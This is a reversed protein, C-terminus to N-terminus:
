AVRRLMELISDPNRIEQSEQSDENGQSFDVTTYTRIGPGHGNCDMERGQQARRVEKQHETLELRKRKSFSCHENGQESHDKLDEMLEIRKTSKHATTVKHKQASIDSPSQCKVLFPLNKEQLKIRKKRSLKDLLDLLSRPYELDFQKGYTSNWYKITLDAIAPNPHDLTKKLLDAQLKLFGSDYRIPPQSMMLCNLIKGWLHQLENLISEHQIERQSLWQLLPPSMIQIFLLIRQELHLCNVVRTLVSFVRSTLLLDIPPNAGLMTHSMKLFRAALELSNNIGNLIQSEGTDKNKNGDLDAATLIQDLIFTVANSCLYLLDHVKQSLNLQVSYDQIGINEDLLGNLTLCLVEPFSDTSFYKSESAVMAGYLSKWVEMAEELDFKGNTSVFFDKLSISLEMPKLNKSSHSCVYFPYSLLHCTALNSISNSDLKLLSVNKGDVICDNLCKAIVIWLFLYKYDVLKYLLCVTVRLSELHNGLSLISKFFKQLGQLALEMMCTQSSSQIVMFIYLIVIYVVPSVMDTPAIHCFSPLRKYNNESVQQMNQIYRIDLAVMYLPSGLIFPELEETVAELFQLPVLCLANAGSADFNFDECIKKIFNLISNLCFMVGDYNISSSGLEVQVGKLLSRFVRLSANYASYRNEDTLTADCAHSNINNLIEIFFDLRSIDWPLWKVPHRKWLSKVSPSPEKSSIFLLNDSKQSTSEHDSKRCKALIFDDLLDLCPNWLWLTKATLSLQFVARFIPVLAMDVVLPHNIIGDLKHLLYHWTNLCSTYVSLDCKSSMVGILPTMLLKISKSFGGEPSQSTNRHSSQVHQSVINKIAKDIECTSISPDLLSDILGEWAVQSAIQVQPNYDSFTKEPIKLMHNVLHRIKVHSGLLRIFWEWAQIAQIKFGQNLLDMMGYLMNQKLDEVLVKSLPSPPPLILSRIKLLCRQSIDRERKDISLLRRYIPPTWIHSTKKMKGTLQDALKIVAQMAEFTISLSGMPNDLAHVTARLLADFHSALVLADFQQMSICWVGLNCVSKIKTAMIVESLAEVINSADDVTITSVLSPHYLIFGLCKLAQAAIEEDEASVDVSIASVLVRCSDALIQISSPDNGSQEQLHLLHSYAFSKNGKSRSKILAKAEELQDSFNSM